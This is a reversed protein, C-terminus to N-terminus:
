RNGPGWRVLATANATLSMPPYNSGALLSLGPMRNNISPTSIVIEKAQGLQLDMHFTGSATAPLVVWHRVQPLANSTVEGTTSSLTSRGRSDLGSAFLSREVVSSTFCGCGGFGETSASTPPPMDAATPM